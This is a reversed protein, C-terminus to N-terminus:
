LAFQRPPRISYISKTANSSTWTVYQGNYYTAATAATCGAGCEAYTFQGSGQTIRLRLKDGSAGTDIDAVDNSLKMQGSLYMEAAQSTAGTSVFSVVGYNDAAATDTGVFDNAAPAAANAATVSLLGFGMSAVAVLAIRKRLTKTSMNKRENTSIPCKGIEARLDQPDELETENADCVHPTM